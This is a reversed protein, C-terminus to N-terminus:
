PKVSYGDAPTIWEVSADLEIKYKGSVSAKAIFEDGSREYRTCTEQGEFPAVREAIQRLIRAAEAPAVIRGGKRLTGAKIEQARITACVADGRVVVPGQSEVTLPGNNSILVIATHDYTKLGTKRYSIIVRCTRNVRNPYWCQLLGKKALELPHTANTASSPGGIAAVLMSLILM